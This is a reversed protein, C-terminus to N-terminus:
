KQRNSHVMKLQLYAISFGTISSTYIVIEYIIFGISLDPRLMFKKWNTLLSLRIPSVQLIGKSKNEKLFFRITKGYYYQKKIVDVISIPEGLHLEESTIFGIKYNNIILRNQLDYDEAAVMEENFGSLRIYADKRIFRAANHNLDYKYCDKELKRVKAWFSISPDPSCYISIADYDQAECKMVAEEVLQPDLLFDSDVRYLYKGSSVNAGLNIQSSREKGTLTYIKCNYNQAVEVTKDKSGNDVLIIEINAYTQNKISILCKEITKESNYTPIIISVLPM